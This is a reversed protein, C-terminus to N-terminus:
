RSTRAARRRTAAPIITCSSWRAQALNWRASGVIERPYVAAANITGSAMAKPRPGPHQPQQPLHGPVGETVRHAMAAHLYDTLAQWGSLVPRDLAAARMSRLAAAEVFKSHRRVAKVEVKRSARSSPRHRRLCRPCRGSNPSCASPWHSPTAGRSRWGWCMTRAVGYDLFADGGGELLRERMQGRHGASDTSPEANLCSGGHM